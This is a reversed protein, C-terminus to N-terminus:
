VPQHSQAVCTKKKYLSKLVSADLPQIYVSSSRKKRIYEAPRCNLLSFKSTSLVNETTLNLYFMILQAEQGWSISFSWEVGSWVGKSWDDEGFGILIRMAAV